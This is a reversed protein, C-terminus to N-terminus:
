GPSPPTIQTRVNNVVSTGIQARQQDLQNTVHAQQWIGILAVIITLAYALSVRVTTLHYFDVLRNIKMGNENLVKADVMVALVATFAVAILGDILFTSYHPGHLAFTPIADLTFSILAVLGLTAGRVPASGGRLYPQICGYVFCLFVWGVPVGIVLQLSDILGVRYDIPWIQGSTWNQYLYYAAPAAALPAGIRTCRWGNDWWSSEPGVALATQAPDVPYPAIMTLNPVPKAKKRFTGWLRQWRGPDPASPVEYLDWSKGSEQIKHEVDQRHRASSNQDAGTQGSNIATLETELRKRAEASKLLPQQFRKLRMGPVPMPESVTNGEFWMKNELDKLRNSVAGRTLLIYAAIFAIPIDFIFDEGWIGIYLATYLLGLVAIVPQRNGFFIRPDRQSQIWLAGFLGVAVPWFLLGPVEQFLWYFSGLLDSVVWNVPGVAFSNGLVSGTDWDQYSSYAVMGVTALAVALAALNWRYPHRTTLPRDKLRPQNHVDVPWLRLSYGIVASLLLYCTILLPLTSVVVHALAGPTAQLMVRGRSYDFIPSGDGGWIAPFLQILCALVTLTGTLMVLRMDLRSKRWAAYFLTASFLLLLLFDMNAFADFGSLFNGGAFIKEIATDLWSSTPQDGEYQNLISVPVSVLGLLMIRSADRFYWLTNDTAVRGRIRRLLLLALAYFLLLGLNWGAEPLLKVPWAAVRHDFTFLTPWALTVTLAQAQMSSISKWSLISGGVDKSPQPTWSRPDSGGTNINVTWLAQAPDGPLNGMSLTVNRNDEHLGWLGISVDDEGLPDLSLDVQDNVTVKGNAMSVTPPRQRYDTQYTPLFCGIAERFADSFPDATLAASGPWSAPVTIVTIASLDPASRGATRINLTADVTATRLQKASCLDSATGSHFDAQAPSLGSHMLMLVAVIGCRLLMFGGPGCRM